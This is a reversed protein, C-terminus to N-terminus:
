SVIFLTWQHEPSGAQTNSCANILDELRERSFESFDRWLAGKRYTSFFHTQLFELRLPVNDTIWGIVNDVRKCTPILNFEIFPGMHETYTLDLKFLM